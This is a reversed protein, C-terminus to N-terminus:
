ADDKVSCQRQFSGDDASVYFKNRELTSLLMHDTNESDRFNRIADGDAKRRKRKRLFFCLTTTVIIIILVVCGVSLGVIINTLDEGHGEDNDIMIYSSEQCDPKSQLFALGISSSPKHTKIM